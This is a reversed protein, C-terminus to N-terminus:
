KRRTWKIDSQSRTPGVVMTHYDPEPLPRVAEFELERLMTFLITKVQLLGFKEGMCRHVGAGFTIFANADFKREPNFKRHEPWYKEDCHNLLPSCAIIDGEPVVVDGVKHAQMCKRMLIVLPPDRRIAERAVNETYPMQDMVIDYNLTDPFEAHEALVKQLYEKNESQALHLLSWTSTITSTHQGAFMAAIIMGCVEHLSMPPGDRYVANCLGNLMDSRGEAKTNEGSEEEAKREEVIKSLM